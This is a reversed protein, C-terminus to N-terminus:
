QMLKLASSVTTAATHACTKLKEHRKDGGFTSNKTYTFLHTTLVGNDIVAATGQRNPFTGLTM